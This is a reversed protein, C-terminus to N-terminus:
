IGDENPHPLNRRTCLSKIPRIAKSYAAEDDSKSEVFSCLSTAARTGARWYGWGDSNSNVIRLYNNLYNAAKGAIGTRREAIARTIDYENMFM